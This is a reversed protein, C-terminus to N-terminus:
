FFSHFSISFGRGNVHWRFPRVGVVRAVPAVRWTVNTQKLCIAFFDTHIKKFPVSNAHDLQQSSGASIASSDPCSPLFVFASLDGVRLQVTIASGIKLHACYLNEM